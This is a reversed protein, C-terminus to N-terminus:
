GSGSQRRIPPLKISTTSRLCMSLTRRGGQVVTNPLWNHLIMPHLGQSVVRSLRPERLHQPQPFMQHQGPPSIVKRVLCRGVQRRKCEGPTVPLNAVMEGGELGRDGMTRWAKVVLPPLKIWPPTSLSEGGLPSAQRSYRRNTRLQHSALHHSVSLCHWRLHACHQHPRCRLGQALGRPGQVLQARAHRETTVRIQISRGVGPLGQSATPLEWLLPAELPPLSWSSFDPSTLGPLSVVYGAMGAVSTSPTTM